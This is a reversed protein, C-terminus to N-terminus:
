TTAVPGGLGMAGGFAGGSNTYSLNKGMISNLQKVTGTQVERGTSIDTFKYPNYPNKAVFESFNPQKRGEFQVMTGVYENRQRSVWDRGLGVRENAKLDEYIIKDLDTGKDDIIQELKKEREVYINPNALGDNSTGSDNNQTSGYLQTNIKNEGKNNTFLYIIISVVISICGATIISNIDDPSILICLLTVLLILRTLSNYNENRMDSSFPNINFSDFISGINILWYTTM